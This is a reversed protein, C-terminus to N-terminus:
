LKRPLDGFLIPKIVETITGAGECHPCVSTNVYRKRLCPLFEGTFWGMDDRAKASNIGDELEKSVHEWHARPIEKCKALIPTWKDVLSVPKAIM